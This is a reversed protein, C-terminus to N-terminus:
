QRRNPENNNWEIESRLRVIMEAKREEDSAARGEKRGIEIFNESTETQM